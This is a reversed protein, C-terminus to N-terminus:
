VQITVGPAEIHFGTVRSSSAHRVSGSRESSCCGRTLRWDGPYSSCCGPEGLEFRAGQDDLCRCAAKPTRVTQNRGARLAGRATPSGPDRGATSGRGM